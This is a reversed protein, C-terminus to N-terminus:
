WGRYGRFLKKGVWWTLWGFAGLVGFAGGAIALKWYWEPAAIFWGWLTQLIPQLGFAAWVHFSLVYSHAKVKRSHRKALGEGIAIFEDIGPADWYFGPALRDTGAERHNKKKAGVGFELYDARTVIDYIPSVTTISM